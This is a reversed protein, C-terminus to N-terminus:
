WEKNTVEKYYKKAQAMVQDDNYEQVRNSLREIARGLAAWKDIHIQKIDEKKDKNVWYEEKSDKAKFDVVAKESTITATKLVQKGDTGKDPVNYWWEKGDIKIMVSSKETSVAGIYGKM